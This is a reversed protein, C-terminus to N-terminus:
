SCNLHKYCGYQQKTCTIQWSVATSIQRVLVNVLAM